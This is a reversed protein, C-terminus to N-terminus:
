GARKSPPGTAAKYPPSASNPSFKRLVEAQKLAELTMGALTVTGNVLAKAVGFYISNATTATNRPNRREARPELWAESRASAVLQVHDIEDALFRHEQRLAIGTEGLGVAASASM